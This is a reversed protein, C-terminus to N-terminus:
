KQLKFSPNLPHCICVAIDFGDVLRETLGDIYVSVYLSILKCVEVFLSKLTRRSRNPKDIAKSKKGGADVDVDDDDDDDAGDADDDTDDDTDDDHGYEEIEEEPESIPLPAKLDQEDTLPKSSCGGM